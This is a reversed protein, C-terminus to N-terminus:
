IECGHNKPDAVYHVWQKLANDNQTSLLPLEIEAYGTFVKNDKALSVIGDYAAIVGQLAPEGEDLYLQGCNDKGSHGEHYRQLFYSNQEKLDVLYHERSLIEVRTGDWDKAQYARELAVFDTKLANAHIADMNTMARNNEDTRENRYAIAALVAFCIIAVSVTELGFRRVGDLKRIKNLFATGRVGAILSLVILVTAVVRSNQPGNHILSWSIEGLYLLLGFVAWPLSYRFIRWAIIGFLFADVLSNGNVGAFPQGTAIAILSFICIVIAVFIAGFAGSKAAKKAEEENTIVPWLWRFFKAKTKADSEPAPQSPESSRYQWELGRKEIELRLAEQAPATLSEHERALRLLEEDSSQSYTQRLQVFEPTEM